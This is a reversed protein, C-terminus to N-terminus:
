PAPRILGTEHEIQLRQQASGSGITIVLGSGTSTTVRGSNTANFVVTRPGAEAICPSTTAPCALTLLTSAGDSFVVGTDRVTATIPRRQALARRQMAPTEAQLTDAYARLRWASLDLMRPVAFVALVGILTLVMVLEVLTFGRPARAGM